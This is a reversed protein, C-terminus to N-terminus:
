TGPLLQQRSVVLWHMGARLLWVPALYPDYGLGIPVEPACLDPCVTEGDCMNLRQAEVRPSM